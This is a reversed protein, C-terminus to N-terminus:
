RQYGSIRLARYNVFLVTGELSTLIVVDPMTDVLRAYLERSNRLSELAADKQLEAVRQRDRIKAEALERTIASCLRSLNNKIM